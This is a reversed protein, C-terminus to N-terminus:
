PEQQLAAMEAEKCPQVCSEVLAGRTQPDMHEVLIRNSTTYRAVLVALMRCKGRLRRNEHELHRQYKSKRESV